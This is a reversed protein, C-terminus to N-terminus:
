GLFRTIKIGKNVNLNGKKQSIPGKNKLRERDIEKDREREKKREREIM